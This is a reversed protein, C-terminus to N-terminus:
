DADTGRSTAESLIEWAAIFLAAALPGIVLGNVGLVALGGLTSVLVVFDPMGANRGVLLPRVLNDVVGVVLVGYVLLAIGKAVAGSAVLYGVVPLWVIAGGIAPLLSLLAILAGWLAASGIGAIWLALAGLTGQLIAIVFNGKVTARVVAAFRAALMAKHRADLPIAILVREALLKGDRFLFFLLYLMVFFSVALEFANQGVNLAQGAIAQSGRALSEIVRARIAEFDGIGIRKLLQLVGEPLLGFLRAVIAGIDIAGSRIRDTTAVIEQLVAAGVLCLPLVVVLMVIGLAAAAAWGSAGRMRHMLWDRLPEFVIALVVAWFIAGFFPSVIWALAFSAAAAFVLLPRRERRRAEHRPM